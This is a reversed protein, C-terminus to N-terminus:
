QKWSGDEQPPDPIFEGQDAWIKQGGDMPTIAAADPIESQYMQNEQSDSLQQDFMQQQYYQDSTDVPPLQDLQQQQIIQQSRLDYEPIQGQLLVEQHEHTALEEQATIITRHRSGSDEKPAPPSFGRRKLMQRSSSSTNTQLTQTSNSSENRSSSIIAPHMELPPPEPDSGTQVRPVGLGSSPLLSSNQWEMQQQQQYHQQLIEAENVIVGASIENQGAGFTNAGLMIQQVQGQDSQEFQFMGIDDGFQQEDKQRFQEILNSSQSPHFPQPSNSVENHRDFNAAAVIPADRNLPDLKVEWKRVPNNNPSKIVNSAVAERELQATKAAFMKIKDSLKMHMVDENYSASHHPGPAAWDSVKNNYIDNNTKEINNQDYQQQYNNFSILQHQRDFGDHQNNNEVNFEECMNFEDQMFQGDQHFEENEQQHQQVLDMQSQSQIVELERAQVPDFGMPAGSIPVLTLVSIKQQPMVGGHRSFRLPIGNSANPSFRLHRASRSVKGKPTVEGGLHPSPTPEIDKDPKPLSLPPPAALSLTEPQILVKPSLSQKKMLHMQAIEPSPLESRRFTSSSSERTRSKKEGKLSPEKLL